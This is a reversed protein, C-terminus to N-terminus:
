SIVALSGGSPGPAPASRGEAPFPPVVGRGAEFLHSMAVWWFPMLIVPSWYPAKRVRPHLRRIPM